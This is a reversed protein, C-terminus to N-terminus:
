STPSASNRLTTDAPRSEVDSAQHKRRPFKSQLVQRTPLKPTAIEGRERNSRGSLRIAGQRIQLQELVIDERRHDPTYAIVAVPLDGDRKWTVDLGRRRAQETIQDILNEAPFPLAGARIKELTLEVINGSPVRIGAVVWVVSTVPGRDLRFALTVRDTEFVVRPDHVGSPLQDAFHKVLDEALWANVEQDTFVAEWKPENCIDNRLQLSQAVFHKAKAQQEARPLQIIARYFQPQHTLSIWAVLPISLIVVPSLSLVLVRKSKKSM